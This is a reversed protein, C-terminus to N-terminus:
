KIAKAKEYIKGQLEKMEKQFNTVAEPKTKPNRMLEFYEFKKNHLKKRLDATENMFKQYGAASYGWMMGKGQGMMGQGMGYGMMGPGMGYGGYGMMGPGMMGYRGYGMMGPGMGYGMMGPGAMYCPHYQGSQPSQGQQQSQGGMMGSGMMDEQMQAFGNTATLVVSLVAVLFLQKM